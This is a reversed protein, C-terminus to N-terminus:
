YNQSLTSTLTYHMKQLIYNIRQLTLIEKLPINTFLSVVDFSAFVVSSNFKQKRLDELFTSTNLITYKNFTIKSLFQILYKALNYNFTRISSIIPRIPYGPKHIKILGFMKGPISVSIITDYVTPGLKEKISRLIRNLKEELSLLVKYSDETILIFKSKDSLIAFLKSIYETRNLIVTARKKDARTIIISHDRALGNLVSIDNKSFVPCTNIWQKINRFSNNALTSIHNRLNGLVNSYLNNCSNNCKGLLSCINEFEAFYDIDCLKPFPIAFDLGLCLLESERSSLMRNSFNLLIKEKDTNKSNDVGLNLLKKDHTKNIKDIITKNTNGIRLMFCRYDLFSVINRLDQAVAQNQSILDQYKKEQNSLEHRLIDLQCKRYNSTSRFGHSTVRFQVFKPFVEYHVCNKLFNIHAETKRLKLDNRELKRFVQLAEYNYRNRIIWSIATGKPYRIRLIFLLVLTIAFIKIQYRLKRVIQVKNM